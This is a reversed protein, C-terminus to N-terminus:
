LVVPWPLQAFFGQEQLVYRGERVSRELLASPDLGVVLSADGLLEVLWAAVAATLQAPTALPAGSVSGDGHVVFAALLPHAVHAVDRARRLAAVAAEEGTRERVGEGAAELLRRYLEVLGPLAQEPLEELAPYVSVGLARSGFLTRMFDGAPVGPERGCFYGTSYHGEDLCLYHMVGGDCLEVVGRYRRARLAPFLRDPHAPDLEGDLPLPERVLTALMARLQPEPAGYFAIAGAEGREVEAAAIDLVENIAMQERGGPRIRAAQFAEGGKLFVLYCSEGLHITVFGTVRAARDRKGDSLIGPLNVYSLKTRALYAVEHPFQYNM